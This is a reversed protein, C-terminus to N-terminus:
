KAEAELQADVKVHGTSVAVKKEWPKFGTKKVVIDHEGAGVGVSSPTSGVFTGDIEIDAGDPTSSLELQAGSNSEQSAASGNPAPAAAAHAQAAEFKARDRRLL